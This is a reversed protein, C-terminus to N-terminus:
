KKSGYWLIVQKQDKFSEEAKSANRLSLDIFLFVFTCLLFIRTRNRIFKVRM